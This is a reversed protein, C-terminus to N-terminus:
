ATKDKKEIYKRDKKPYLLEKDYFPSRKKLEGFLFEYGYKEALTEEESFLNTGLGLREGEIRAGISALVTPFMDMTTFRRGKEQLPETVAHIFTEYVKRKNQGLYDDKTNDGYFSRVMSLHDGCIYIVTDQYFDQDQIWSVFSFIQESACAWVNAYQSSYRDPCDECVYGAPMHTDVTLLSFHFPEEQAAIKTLEEKAFAFLKRDEFGWFVKYGPELKGKRVAWDYDMIEYNGHTTYYKRRGGFSFDSGAMFYNHYGETELIDELTVVGPLFYEYKGMVNNYNAPLKLPIGATEAVLGAITWTCDPAVAAGEILESHSFSINEKALLTLEPILNEEMLGGNKRDQASTEASEVYICILNKKKEPFTINVEDPSVYEEEILSSSGMQEALYATMQFSDDAKELIFCYSCILFFLNVWPSIKLPLLSFRREGWSTQVCLEFRRRRPFLQLLLFVIWVMLAPKLGKQIYDLTLDRSVGQLPMNIHFIIEDLGVSGYNDLVWRLTVYLIMWVLWFLHLILRGGRKGQRKGKKM